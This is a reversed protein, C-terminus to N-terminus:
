IIGRKASIYDVLRAQEDLTMGDVLKAAKQLKTLTQKVTPKHDSGHWGARRMLSFVFAKSAKRCKIAKEFAEQGLRKYLEAYIAGAETASAGALSWLEDIAYGSLNDM